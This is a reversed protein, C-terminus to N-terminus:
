RGQPPPEFGPRSGRGGQQPIGSLTIVTQGDARTLGGAWAHKSGDRAAYATVTVKEGSAVLAQYISRNFGNQNAVRPGPTELAWNVVKGQDNVADLYIWGHPNELVVKTLRGVLTLPQSQDYEAQFSHHAWVPISVALLTIVLLVTISTNKM